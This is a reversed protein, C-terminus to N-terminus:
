GREPIKRRKELISKKQKQISKQVPVPLSLVHFDLPLKWLKSVKGKMKKDINLLTLKM